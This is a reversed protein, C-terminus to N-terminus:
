LIKQIVPAYLLSNTCFTCRITASGYTKANYQYWPQYDIITPLQSTSVKAYVGMVKERIELTKM